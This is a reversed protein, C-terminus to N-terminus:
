AGENGEKVEQIENELMEMLVNKVERENFYNEIVAELKPTPVYSNIDNNKKFLGNQELFRLTKNVLGIRAGSVEDENFAEKDKSISPPMNIWYSYLAKFSKSEVSNDDDKQVAKIKEEVRLYVQLAKVYSVHTRYNSQIYFFMITTYAIFYCIYLETNNKLKLIARLEENTFGFTKNDIGAVLFLGINENRYMSLDFIDVIEDLDNQIGSNLKYENYLGDNKINNVEDGKLLLSFIELAKKTNSEM